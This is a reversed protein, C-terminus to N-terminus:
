IYFAGYIYIYCRCLFVPMSFLGSQMCTRKVYIISKTLCYYGVHLGLGILRLKYALLSESALWSVTIHSFWLENEHLVKAHRAYMLGLYCALGLGFLLYVAHLGCMRRGSREAMSAGHPVAVDSGNRQHKRSGPLRRSGKSRKRKLETMVFRSHLAISSHARVLAAKQLLKRAHATSILSM